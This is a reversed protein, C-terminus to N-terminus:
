SNSNHCSPCTPVHGLTIKLKKKKKKKLNIMINEPIQGCM